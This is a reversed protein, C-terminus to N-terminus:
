FYSSSLQTKVKEASLLMLLFIFIFTSIIGIIFEM